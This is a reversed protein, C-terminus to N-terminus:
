GARPRTSDDAAQATQTVNSGGNGNRKQALQWVLYLDGVAIAGACVFLIWSWFRSRRDVVLKQQSWSVENQEGILKLLVGQIFAQRATGEGTAAFYCGSLRIPDASERKFKFSGKLLNELRKRMDGLDCLLRFMKRNEIDESPNQSFTAYVWGQFWHLSREIAWAAHDDDIALGTPFRTGARSLRLRSQTPTLRAMFQQFGSLEEVGTYLLAVPFQLQLSNYLSELDHAIAPSLQSLTRQDSAWTVPATQILGNVACYPDRDRSILYCLYRMRRRALNLERQGIPQVSPAPPGAPHAAPGAGRASPLMTQQAASMQAAKMTGGASPAAGGGAPALDERRLTGAPASPRSFTAGSPGMAAGPAPGVRDQQLSMAGVGTLSVFAADNNVYFRLVGPRDLSPAVINWSMGAGEFLNREQKPTLGNVLIVPLGRIDLGQRALAAVGENWATEIDAFEPEEYTWLLSFFYILMRVFIYLLLFMVGCYYTRVFESPLDVEEPPQISASFYGLLLTIVAILVYHIAHYLWPTKLSSAPVAGFIYRVWYVVKYFYGTM